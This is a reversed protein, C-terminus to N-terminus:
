SLRKNSLIDILKANKEGGIHKLWEEYSPAGEGIQLESNYIEIFYDYYEQYSQFYKKNWVREDAIFCISTVLDGLDPEKFYTFNIGVSNLEDIINILEPYTGGDLMILTKDVDIYKRYELDDHYKNAYELCVHCNQVGKNIPSLQRLSLCYMRYELDKSKENM